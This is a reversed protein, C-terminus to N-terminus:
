HGDGDQRHVYGHAIEDRDAARVAVIEVDAHVTIGSFPHNADVDVM